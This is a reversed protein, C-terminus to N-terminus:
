QVAFNKSMCSVNLKTKHQLYDQPLKSVHELYVTLAHEVSCLFSYM